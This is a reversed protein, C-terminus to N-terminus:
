FFYLHLTSGIIVTLRAGIRQELYGGLLMAM